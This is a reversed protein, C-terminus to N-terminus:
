EFPFSLSAASLPCGKMRWKCKNEDALCWHSCTVPNSSTNFHFHVQSCTHWRSQRWSATMTMTQSFLCLDYGSLQYKGLLMHRLCSPLRHTHQLVSREWRAHRNDATPSAPKKSRGAIVGNIVDVTQCLSAPSCERCSTEIQRDWSAVASAARHLSIVSTRAQSKTYTHRSHINFIIHMANSTSIFPWASYCNLKLYSRERILSLNQM